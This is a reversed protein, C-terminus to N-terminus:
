QAKKQIKEGVQELDKGLGHMTNCGAIAAMWVVLSVAILKKM